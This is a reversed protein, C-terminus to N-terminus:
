EIRGFIEYWHDQSRWKKMVKGNVFVTPTGQVKAKKGEQISAIIKEKTKPDQQCQKFKEMNLNLSQAFELFKAESLQTQNAFILDHYSWFQGQEDACYASFAAECAQRHGDQPFFPNCKKDLPYFMYVLKVDERFDELLPKLEEAAKKCHPCQFDSFEAVITKANPNGWYPNQSTEIDYSPGKLMEDIEAKVKDENPINLNMETIDYRKQYDLLAFAIFGAGFILLVWLTQGLWPAHALSKSWKSLNFSLCFPMSAALLFNVFYLSMCYPCFTKLNISSEYALLLSLVCALLVGLYPINLYDISPTKATKTRILQIMLYLYFVVGIGGLPIFSIKAFRSNLVFDCNLKESFNCVPDNFNGSFHKYTLFISVLLGILSLILNLIWINQKFTSKTKKEM